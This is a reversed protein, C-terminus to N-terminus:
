LIRGIVERFKEVKLMILKMWNEELNIMRLVLEKCKKLLTKLRRRM